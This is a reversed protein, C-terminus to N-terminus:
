LTLWRSCVAADFLSSSVMDSLITRIDHMQTALADQKTHLSATLAKTEELQRAFVSQNLELQQVAAVSCHLHALM